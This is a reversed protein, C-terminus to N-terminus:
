PTEETLPSGEGEERERWADIATIVGAAVDDWTAGYPATRFSAAAVASLGRDPVPVYTGRFEQDSMAALLRQGPRYLLWGRDPVILFDSGDQRGARVLAIKWPTGVETLIADASVHQALQYLADAPEEHRYQVAKVRALFVTRQIYEGAPVQQLSPGPPSGHQRVEEQLARQCIASVPLRAARVAMMLEGPVSINVPTM